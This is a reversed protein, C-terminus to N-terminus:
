KGEKKMMKKEKYAIIRFKIPRRLFKLFYLFKYKRRDRKSIAGQEFAYDVVKKEHIYQSKYNLSLRNALENNYYTSIQNTKAVIHKAIIIKAWLFLDESTKFNDPFREKVNKRMMVTSTYVVARKFLSCISIEKYEFPREELPKNLYAMSVIDNCVFDVEPHESFLKLDNELKNKVFCDDADLFAIFDGKACDMGVNRTLGAKLNTANQIFKIRSDGINKIIQASNDTSCDDIVILEFNGYTQTLVSNIARAVTKENNHCPIIVSILSNTTM